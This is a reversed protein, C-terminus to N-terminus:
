WPETDYGPQGTNPINLGKLAPHNRIFDPTEGHAVQWVIEGKDMNIASIHGYPPKLLPLGQVSFGGGGGGRGAAPPAQPRPPPAVDAGLDKARRADVCARLKMGARGMIYDMDSFEKDATAVLGLPTLHGARLRLRHANGSRLGRRALEHRRCALSAGADRATWGAQEVGATHVHPRAPIPFRDEFSRRAARAHLRDPEDVTVGQREYAPPKTPFPQTPSYWEGPVDGKPVPREEIPWVPQGTVRDFVYM